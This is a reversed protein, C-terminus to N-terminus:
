VTLLSAILAARTSNYHTGDTTGAPPAKHIDSDRASMAADAWDIVVQVNALGARIDANFGNLDAMNGDVAPTQNATTAWSDTSTSRPGVTTKYTNKGTLNSQGLMTQIDAEIQAKTRSGLSLDNLGSQFFLDTWGFNGAYANITAAITVEEAVQMGGKWFKFYPYGHQDLIRAPVGSGGKPGASTIDGTGGTLSDGLVFFARANKALVTGFIGQCGRT